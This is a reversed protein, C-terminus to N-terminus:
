YRYFVEEIYVRSYSIEKISLERLMLVDAAPTFCFVFIYRHQFLMKKEWMGGSDNRKEENTQFSM